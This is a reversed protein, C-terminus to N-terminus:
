SSRRPSSGSSRGTTCTVSSGGARRTPPRSSGRASAALEERTEANEIAHSVLEALAAVRDEAGPPMPIGAPWNASLAGWVRGGLLIPGAAASRIGLERMLRAVQGGVQDFDEIRVPEPKRLMRGLIGRGDIIARHGVPIPPAAGDSWGAVVRAQEPSEVRLLTTRQAGLLEGLEQTVATFIEAPSPQRAVLTAVRRLASHERVLAELPEAGVSGDM